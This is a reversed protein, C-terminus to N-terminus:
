QPAAAVRALVRELDGSLRRAGVVQLVPDLLRGKLGKGIRVVRVDVDTGGDARPTIAYEWRSGSAWTNSDVTAVSVTGAAADWDYRSREWVGGAVSSGETVDAWNPGSDHLQFHAADINPWIDARSEGFDTLMRLVATPELETRVRFHIRAM